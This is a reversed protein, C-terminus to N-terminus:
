GNHVGGNLRVELANNLDNIIATLEDAKQTAINVAYECTEACAQARLTATKAISAQEKAIDKYSMADYKYKQAQEAYDKCNAEAELVEDAISKSQEYTPIPAVDDSISDGISLTFVQSKAVLTYNDGDAKTAIWQCKIAGIERLLSGTIIVKGDAIPVDYIKGDYYEFRLLYTDVGEVVPQDIEIVRANTEGLYGLLSFNKTATYSENVTIQM